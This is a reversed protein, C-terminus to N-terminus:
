PPQLTSLPTFEEVGTETIQDDDNRILITRPQDFRPRRRPIAQHQVGRAFLPRNAQFARYIYTARVEFSM